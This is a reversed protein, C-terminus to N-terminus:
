RRRGRRVGRTPGAMTRGDNQSPADDIDDADHEIEAEVAREEAPPRQKPDLTFIDGTNPRPEPLDATNGILIQSQTRAMFHDGAVGAFIAEIPHGPEATAIYRENWPFAHAELSEIAERLAAIRAPDSADYFLRRMVTKDGRENAAISAEIMREKSIVSFDLTHGAQRALERMFTRQTRGNGERFPHIANLDAMIDAAQTAFEERPLGLLYGADHLRRAIDDLAAPILPGLMFGSGDAKRMLPESAITGDSLRVEENRTCGAWEYVDQFLHRHLARLHNADFAGHPGEGLVIECDRGFVPEAERSSRVPVTDTIIPSIDQETQRDAM